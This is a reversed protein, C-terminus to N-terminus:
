FPGIPFVPAKIGTTKFPLLNLILTVPKLSPNFEIRNIEVSISLLYIKTPSSNAFTYTSVTFGTM